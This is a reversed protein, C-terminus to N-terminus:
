IRSRIYTQDAVWIQNPANVTAEPLLNSYVPLTHRSNTTLAYKRRRKILLGHSRLIDFFKDRGIALEPLHKLLKRGGVRPMLQRLARIRPLVALVHDQDSAQRRRRQYVAQRSIKLM